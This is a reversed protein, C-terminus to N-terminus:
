GGLIIQTLSETTFEGAALQAAAMGRRLVLVRTAVDPVSSLTHTILLVGAGREATKRVLALVDRAQAVGLAATPEDMLVVKAGLAVSRAIAVAQAQGGSLRGVPVKAVSPLHIHLEALREATQRTMARRNMPMLMHPKKGYVLERGLFFNASADLDSALALDQWVVEIGYERADRPSSLHVPSGNIFLSGSDPIIAGSLIGVLTSKGAGNGGVVAVVDGPRIDIDVDNVAVLGGYRKTLGRGALLSGSVDSPMDVM